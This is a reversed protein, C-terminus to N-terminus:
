TKLWKRSSNSRRVSALLSPLCLLKCQPKCRQKFTLVLVVLRTLALPSVARPIAGAKTLLAAFARLAIAIVVQFALLPMLGHTLRRLLLAALTSLLLLLLM